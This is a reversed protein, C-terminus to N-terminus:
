GLDGVTGDLVVPGEDSNHDYYVLKGDADALLLGKHGMEQFGGDYKLAGAYMNGAGFPIWEGSEVKDFVPGDFGIFYEWVNSQGDEEREKVERWPFVVFDIPSGGVVVQVEEWKKAAILEDLTM